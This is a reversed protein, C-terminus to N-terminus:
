DCLADIKVLLLLVVLARRVEIFLNPGAPDCDDVSEDVGEIKEGTEAAEGGCFLPTITRLPDWSESSSNEPRSLECNSSM